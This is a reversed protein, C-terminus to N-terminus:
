KVGWRLTVPIRKYKTEDPAKLDGSEPGYNTVIMAGIKTWSGTERSRYLDIRKMGDTQNGDVLLGVIKDRLQSLKAGSPDNRTACFIELDARAMYDTIDILSFNIVVWRDVESPTGQIKPASLSTDFTFAVNLSTLEDVFYKRISDRINSERSTSDLSM